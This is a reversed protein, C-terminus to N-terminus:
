LYVPARAALSFAEVITCLLISRWMKYYVEPKLMARPHIIEWRALEGTTTKPERKNREKVHCSLPVTVHRVRLDLEDDDDLRGVRTETVVLDAAHTDGQCGPDLQAWLM